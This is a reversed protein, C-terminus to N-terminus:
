KNSFELATFLTYRCRGAILDGAFWIGNYRGIWHIFPFLSYFYHGIGRITPFFNNLWDFITPEEEVYTDATSASYVSEGQTYGDGTENRYNHKIGLGKSLTHGLNSIAPPSRHPLAM